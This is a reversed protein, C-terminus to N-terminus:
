FGSGKLISGVIKRILLWTRKIITGRIKKYYQQLFNEAVIDCYIDLPYKVVAEESIIADFRNTLECNEGSADTGINHTLSIKPYLTLKKNKFSVAQFFVAWTYLRGEYNDVVQKWFDFTGSCNFEYIDKKTFQKMLKKPDREFLSWQHKWTAWGWCDPRDMFFVEPLETKEMPYMYGSIQIVQKEHKYIELADNMYKLFYKSTIIDDELVIIKGYENVIKTVGDIINRALGWNEHREIIEVAKFGKITYLYKRVQAVMEISESTKAADSYIILNSDKAYINKKLAEVTKQTHDLRNYTFLVIPALTDIFKMKENEDVDWKLVAYDM